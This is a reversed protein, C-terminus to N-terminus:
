NVTMEYQVYNQEALLRLAAFFFDAFVELQRQLNATGQRNARPYHGAEGKLAPHL